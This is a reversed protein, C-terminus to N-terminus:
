KHHDNDDDQSNVDQNDNGDSTDDDSDDDNNPFAILSSRRNDPIGDDDGDTLYTETEGFDYCIGGFLSVSEGMVTEADMLDLGNCSSCTWQLNPEWTNSDDGYPGAHGYNYHVSLDDSDNGSDNSSLSDAVDSAYVGECENIGAVGVETLPLNFGGVEDTYGFVENGGYNVELIGSSQDFNLTIFYVTNNYSDGLNTEGAYEFIGIGSTGEPDFTLDTIAWSQDDAVIEGRTNDYTASSLTYLCSETLGFNCAVPDSCMVSDVVNSDGSDQANITFSIACVLALLVSINKTFNKM